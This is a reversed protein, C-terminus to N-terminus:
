RPMLILLVSYFDVSQMVYVSKANFIDPFETLENHTASFSELQSYGCFYGDPATPFEKIHNYDFYAKALNIEKGFPHVVSLNNNTCDVLGLKTMKRLEEYRPTEVLNNFGLYMVQIKDGCNGNIIAEWDAKLQEGQIGKNSAVNM